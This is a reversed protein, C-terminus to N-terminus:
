GQYVVHVATDTQPPEDAYEIEPEQPHEASSFEVGRLWEFIRELRETENDSNEGDDLRGNNLRDSCSDQISNMVPTSSYRKLKHSHVHSKHRFPKTFVNTNNVSITRSNAPVNKTKKYVTLKQESKNRRLFPKATSAYSEIPVIESDNTTLLGMRSRVRDQSVSRSKSILSQTKQAVMRNKVGSDNNNREYLTQLKTTSGTDGGTSPDSSRTRSNTNGVNGIAPYSSVSDCSLSHPSPNSNKLSGDTNHRRLQSGNKVRSYFSSQETASPSRCKATRDGAIPPLEPASMRRLTRSSAVDGPSFEDREWSSEADEDPLQFTVASGRRSTKGSCRDSRLTSGRVVTSCSNGVCVSGVCSDDAPCDRIGDAGLGSMRM